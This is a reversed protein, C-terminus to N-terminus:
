HLCDKDVSRAALLDALCKRAYFMRSKVNLGLDCGQEVAMGVLPGLVAVLPYNAV